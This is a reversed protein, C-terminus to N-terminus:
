LVIGFFTLTLFIWIASISILNWDVKSEIKAILSSVSTKRSVKAYSADSYYEDELDYDRSEDDQDTDSYNESNDLEKSLEKNDVVVLSGTDQKVPTKDNKDSESLSVTLSLGKYKDDEQNNAM